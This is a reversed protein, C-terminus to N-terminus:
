NNFMEIENPTLNIERGINDPTPYYQVMIFLAILLFVLFFLNSTLLLSVISLLGVGECTALRILQITQYKSLRNMLSDNKNIKSFTMRSYRNGGPLFVCATIFTAIMLPDSMSTNFILKHNTIFLAMLLFTILGSWLSFYIIRTMKLFQKPNINNTIM